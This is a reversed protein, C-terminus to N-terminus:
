FISLVTFASTTFAATLEWATPIAATCGHPKLIFKTLFGIEQDEAHNKMILRLNM